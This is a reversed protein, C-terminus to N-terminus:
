VGRSKINKVNIYDPLTTLFKVVASILLSYIVLNYIDEYEVKFYDFFSKKRNFKIDGFEINNAPYITPDIRVGYVKKVPLSFVYENENETKAWIRKRESFAEESNTTYYMVIEGPYLSFRAKLTVTTLKEGYNLIMQPDNDTTIYGGDDSLKFGVLDFDEATYTKESLTGNKKSVMEVTFNKVGCILFFVCLMVGINVTLLIFPMNKIKKRLM